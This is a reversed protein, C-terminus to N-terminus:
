PTADCQQANHTSSGCLTCSHEGKRCPLKDCGSPGNWSFCFRKGSKSVRAGTPEQRSL